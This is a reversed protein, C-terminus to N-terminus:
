ANEKRNRIVIEGKIGDLEVEDSNNLIKCANEVNYICPINVERLIIGLHEFPSGQEVIVGKVKDLVPFIDGCRTYPIVLICDENILNPIGLCVKGIVKKRLGPIGKLISNTGEDLAVEKNDFDKQSTPEKGIYEPPLLQKQKEYINKREEIVHVFNSNYLLGSKIEDLKLFYIDEKDVILNNDKLIKSASSIALSLYVNSKREFYCHHNDRSLYSKEALMLKKLFDEKEDEALKELFLNKVLQKNQQSKNISEIYTSSDVGLYGRVYNLVTSPKEMISPEIRTSITNCDLQLMGYEKVYDDMLVLIEKAEPIIKLHEYIIEDYRVEDFLKKVKDKSNIISAMLIYYERERALLSKEFVLDYFDEQSLDKIIERCYGEFEKVYECGYAAKWHNKATFNMYELSKDLFKSVERPLIDDRVYSDLSSTLKLMKPLFIDEFINKECKTLEDVEYKFLSRKEEANSVEKDRYYSYGNQLIIVPYGFEHGVSYANEKFGCVEHEMLECMLPFFPKDDELFWTYKEDEPNSWNIPFEKIRFTTIPRVQLVYLEGETITWEVDVKEKMFKEINLTTEYLNEIYELPLINTNEPIKKEVISGDKKRISYLSSPIKGSVFDDCISNVANIHMFNENMDITEVSFNVGSYDGVIFEQVIIGMKLLEIKLNNKIIYALVENTFASLYCKKIAMRVDEFSNLEIFSEFMGAMSHMKSDECLSSSRVVYKANLKNKSINNFLEELKNEINIPFNGKLILQSIKDNNALCQEMQFPINNYRLYEIFVENSIAFGEPVKFKNNKLEGLVCAKQGYKENDSLSLKELLKFM